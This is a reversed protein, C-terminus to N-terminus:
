CLTNKEINCPQHVNRIQFIKSLIPYMKGLIEHPDTIGTVDVWQIHEEKRFWTFQRKAYRRSSKKILSVAEILTMEDGFYQAIEKYGIAQMSPLSSVPLSPPPSVAINDKERDSPGATIAEKIMGTVKKVEEILGATIMADVREEILRYLEKRERTIGIKIFECPLPQTLMKQFESMRAGGKFRVELARIIRRTDNPTIKEAAVPDLTKLYDYLTGKAEQEMTLLEERLTWDASPGSFIGKTMARIYLGTGGVVVPIRGERLLHEIIPKVAAIYKGTSYTEWPEAIDIMHHPVYKREDPSPKATGIDMHRYIQMSDASIIETNLAKALLLSTSTKGVGTPGLLILVKSM